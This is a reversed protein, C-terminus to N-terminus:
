QFRPHGQRLGDSGQEHDEFSKGSLWELWFGRLELSQIGPLLIEEDDDDDDAVHDDADEQASRRRECVEAQM